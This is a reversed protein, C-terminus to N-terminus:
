PHAPRRFWRGILLGVILFILAAILAIILCWWWWHTGGDGKGPETPGGTGAADDGEIATGVFGSRGNAIRIQYTTANVRNLESGREGFIQYRWKPTAQGTYTVGYGYSGIDDVIEYRKKHIEIFEGTHRYGHVSWLLSQTPGVSQQATATAREPRGERIFIPQLRPRLDILQYDQGAVLKYGATGIDAIQGHFILGNGISGYHMNAVAASNVFVNNFCAAPANPGSCTLHDTNNACDATSCTSPPKGSLKVMVCVHDPTGQPLTWNGTTFTKTAGPPIDSPLTPNPQTANQDLQIQTFQPPMGFPASSFTAIVQPAIVAHGSGNLTNNHALASLTNPTGPPNLQTGNNNATIDVSSINVGNGGNCTGTAFSGGAWTSPDPTNTYSANGVHATDPYPPWAAEVAQASPGQWVRIVNMYIGFNGSAPKAFDGPSTDLPIKLNITYVYDGSAGATTKLQVNSYPATLWSPLQTQFTWYNSGPVTADGVYLEPPQAPGQSANMTGDGPKVPFLVVLRRGTIDQHNQVTNAPTPDYAVYIADATDFDQGAAPDVTKHVEFSLYLFSDDNIGQMVIEPSPTGNTNAGFDQAWSGRWGIASSTGDIPPPSSGGFWTL